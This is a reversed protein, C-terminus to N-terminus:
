SSKEGFQISVTHRLTHSLTPTVYLSIHYAPLTCHLYREVVQVRQKCHSTFLFQVVHLKVRGASDMLTCLDATWEVVRDRRRDRSYFFLILNKEVFLSCTM